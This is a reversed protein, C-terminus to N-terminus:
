FKILCADRRVRFTTHQKMSEDTRVRGEELTRILEEFFDRNM